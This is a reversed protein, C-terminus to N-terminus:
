SLFDREYPISELDLDTITKVDGFDYGHNVFAKLNAFGYRLNDIIIYISRGSGKVLTNNAIFILPKFYKPNIELSSRLGLVDLWGNYIARHIYHFVGSPACWHTCDPHSLFTPSDIHATVQFYLPKAIKVLQIHGTSQVILSEEKDKMVRHQYKHRNTQQLIRSNYRKIAIAIEANRWDLEKMEKVFTEPHKNIFDQSYNELGCQTMNAKRELDFYGSATNFHQPAAELFLFHPLFGLKARVDLLEDTLKQLAEHFYTRNNYHLGINVVIIDDATLNYRVFITNEFLQPKFTHYLHGIIVSNSLPLFARGGLFHCHDAGFPCFLKEESTPNKGYIGHYDVMINQPTYLNLHCLFTMYIQMMISDGLFLVKRNEIMRLFDSPLPNVCNADSSKWRTYEINKARGPPFRNDEFGELYYCSYFLVQTKCASDLFLQESGKRDSQDFKARAYHTPFPVSYDEVLAWHGEECQTNIDKNSIITKTENIRKDEIDHLDTVHYENLKYATIITKYYPFQICIIVLLILCYHTNKVM